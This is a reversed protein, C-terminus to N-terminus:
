SAGIQLIFVACIDGTVTSLEDAVLFSSDTDHTMGMVGIVVDAM